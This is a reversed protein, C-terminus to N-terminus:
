PHNREMGPNFQLVRAPIEFTYAPSHPELTAILQQTEKNIRKVAPMRGEKDLRKMDMWRLGGFMTERRREALVIQLAAEGTAASLPTWADKAIRKKRFTNIIDMAASINNKRAFVEARTLEMEQFTIGFNAYGTPASFGLGYNDAWTFLTYRLDNANFYTKLEESFHLGSPITYDYSTRMWLIDSKVETDPFEYADTYNNYDLLTHSAQLALTAYSAAEEYRQMYLYIRSLLGYAAQKTTRYKYINTTPLYLDAEKLDAIMTDLTAQLTSRPPTKETVDTATVLPLGPDKGATAADYAKAFVTLLTFYSDARIVLAEARVAQKKALDGDTAQLVGNIIVNAHYVSKYQEGWVAPVNNIDDDIKIRWYYANAQPTRDLADMFEYYDDACYLLTPPFTMVMEPANLMAEYDNLLEPIIIGKPKVDLFKNCASFSTLTIFLFLIFFLKNM